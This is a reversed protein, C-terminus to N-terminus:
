FRSATAALMELEEELRDKLEEFTKAGEYPKGNIFIGPTSKVGLAFGEMKEARIQNITTSDARDKQFRSMDLKLGAALQDVNEETIGKRNAFLLDHMPWFRGQRGAAIAATAEAVALPHTKVPFNKFYVVVKGPMRRVIENLGASAAACYPCEYDAYIVVQIPAKPDGLPELGQTSIKVLQPPVASIARKRVELGIQDPATGAAVRRLIFGAIRLAAPAPPKQELCQTVSGQCGYYCQTTDFIAAALVRQKEGLSSGGAIRDFPIEARAAGSLLLGCFAPILGCFAPRVGRNWKM